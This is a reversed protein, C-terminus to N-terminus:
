VESFSPAKECAYLAGDGSINQEASFLVSEGIIGFFGGGDCGHEEGPFQGIGASNKASCEAIVSGWCVFCVQAGGFRAQSLIQISQISWHRNVNQATDFSFSGGAIELLEIM